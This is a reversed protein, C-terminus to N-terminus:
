KRFKSFIDLNYIGASCWTIAGCSFCFICVSVGFGKTSAPTLAPFSGISPPFHGVTPDKARRVSALSRTTLSRRPPGFPKLMNIRVVPILELVSEEERLNRSCLPTTMLRTTAVLGMETWYERVAEPLSSLGTNSSNPRQPAFHNGSGRYPAAVLLPFLAHSQIDLDM